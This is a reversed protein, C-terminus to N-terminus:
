RALRRCKWRALQQFPWRWPAPRSWAYRQYRKFARVRRLKSLDVWHGHSSVYDFSSWDALSKPLPIGKQEMEQAIQSGPYPLYFFIEIQFDPSMSRLKAAVKLTETVAEDTEDPFGVIFPFIAAIGHTRCREAVIFIQELTIDKKMWKLMDDSGSEVGIMVRRLGSLKCIRFADESLRVGQDARMTAAWTFRRGRRLFEEAIAEVRRSRTFFTEDQFNLDEVGYTRHLHEIESGVREPPLGVWSRGYVFPDACFGCRFHCGQSSIYDLQRRKKHAFYTEVPILGYNAAPFADLDSLPRAANRTVTGDRRFCCGRVEDLDPLRDLVEAFTEEGQGQVTAAIREEENLCEIAFISPHWGGWVIHLDPRAAKAARTVEIADTIPSGTLVTIGLCWADRISAVLAQVPNRELRGDIIVVEYRRPDLYSGVAVLALPMTHYDAVPNYLVVKKTM